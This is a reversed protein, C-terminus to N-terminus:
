LAIEVLLVLVQEALFKPIHSWNRGQLRWCTPNGVDKGVDITIRDDRTCSLDAPRDPGYPLTHGRILIFFELAYVQLAITQGIITSFPSRGARSGRM